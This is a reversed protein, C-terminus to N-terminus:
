PREGHGFPRGGVEAFARHDLGPAVQVHGHGPLAEDGHLRGIAAFGIHTGAAEVDIGEAHQTGAVAHRHDAVTTRDGNGGSCFTSIPASPVM